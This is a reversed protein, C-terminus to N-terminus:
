RDLRMENLDGQWEIKGRLSRIEEQLRMKMLMRLGKEVAERKTKIGTIRLTDTMLTDDIEINTRM